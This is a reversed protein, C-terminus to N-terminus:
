DLAADLLDQPKVKDGELHAQSVVSLVRVFIASPDNPDLKPEGPGKAEYLEAQRRLKTNWYEETLANQLFADAMRGREGPVAAMRRLEDRLAGTVEAHTRALALAGQQRLEPDQSALFGNM